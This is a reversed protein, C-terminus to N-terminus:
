VRGRLGALVTRILAAVLEGDVPEGVFCARYTLTGSLMDVALGIDAGPPLEGREVAATLVARSAEKRQTVMGQLMENVEPDVAALALMSSLINRAESGSLREALAGYIQTLDGEISGTRPVPTPDATAAIADLVLREKSDWRRYITAKGVGARQAVGDVTIAAFGVEALLEMTAAVIVSRAGEDRPRGPRRHPPVVTEETVVLSAVASTAM